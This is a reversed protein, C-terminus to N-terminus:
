KNKWPFTTNSCMNMDSSGLRHNQFAWHCSGCYLSKMNKALQLWPYDEFWVKQISHGTAMKPMPNPFTTLDPRTPFLIEQQHECSVSTTVAEDNKTKKYYAQILPQDDIKSSERARKSAM